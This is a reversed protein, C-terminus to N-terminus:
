PALSAKQLEDARALAAQRDAESLGRELDAIRTRWYPDGRGHASVGRFTYRFALEELPALRRLAAETLSSRPDIPEM